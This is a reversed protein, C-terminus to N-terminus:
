AAEVVAPAAVFEAFEQDNAALKEDMTLEWLHVQDVLQEITVTGHCVKRFMNSIHDVVTLFTGDYMVRQKTWPYLEHFKSIARWGIHQEDTSVANCAIIAGGVACGCLGDDSTRELWRVSNRVRLTDGIMIAQSAPLYDM